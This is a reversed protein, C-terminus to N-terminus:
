FSGEEANSIDVSEWIGDHHIILVPSKFTIEESNRTNTNEEDM